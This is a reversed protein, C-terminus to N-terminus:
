YIGPRTLVMRLLILQKHDALLKQPGHKGGDSPQVDGTQYFVHVIDHIYHRVTHESIHLELLTSEFNM